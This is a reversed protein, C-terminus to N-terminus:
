PNDLNEDSAMHGDFLRAIEDREFEPLRREEQPSQGSGSELVVGPTERITGIATAQIGAAQLRQIMEPADQPAVAALLSGSALLGLPNLNYLECLARTEPYIPLAAENLIAGVGAAETLEYIGTALGGETPDHMAHVEGASALIRADRVISIGPDHLFQMARTLQSPSLAKPSRHIMERALLATGEVAIGKTLLLTDGPQAGDSRILQGPDVEGFMAGVVIPRTLGHTVETHGGILIAGLSQCATNLQQFIQEALARDTKQEPLLITAIFWRPRAGVCAIDNANINVVYWGIEDTAFTIPDSKAVLYRDGFDIVAADCGLGPGQIVRPDDADVFQTLFHVLELKPLKGISYIHSEM